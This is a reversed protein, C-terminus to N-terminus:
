ARRRSFIPRVSRGVDQVASNVILKTLTIARRHKGETVADFARKAIQERNGCGRCLGRLAM